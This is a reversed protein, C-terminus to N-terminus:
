TAAAKAPILNILKDSNERIDAISVRGRQKIFKVVAEMEEQSIYIFKGRDDIVGTLIDDKQLDKIRDIVAQTKMNFHAALDELVCVKQTKIYNVFEQLLNQEDSGEGEEFGEEEVKFAEKMKLYEEHERKEKEERLRREEEERRKEEEREKEEQKKREEDQQQERKKKEQRMQEAAERQAKKEAKAELKARKKAGIKGDFLEDAHQEEDAAPENEEDTVDDQQVAALLAATDRHFRFMLPFKM